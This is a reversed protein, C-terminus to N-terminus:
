PRELYRDHLTAGSAFGGFGFAAGLILGVAFSDGPTLHAVLLAVGMGVAWGLLGCIIRM